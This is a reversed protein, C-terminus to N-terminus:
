DEGDDVGADLYDIKFDKVMDILDRLYLTILVAKSLKDYEKESILINGNDDSRPITKGQEFGKAFGYSYGEEYANKLDNGVNDMMLEDGM